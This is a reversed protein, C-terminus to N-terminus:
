SRARKGIARDIILRYQSRCDELRQVATRISTVITAVKECIRRQEAVPPLLIEITEIRFLALKPQTTKATLARIQQQGLQSGLYNFLYEPLIKDDIGTIKAANETLNAGHLEKPVLALRGITGAISIVIDKESVIYRSISPFVAEPVYEFSEQAIEGDVMDVVRIYPHVTPEQSFATGKPLRKGGKVTAIHGLSVVGWHRQGQFVVSELAGKIIRIKAELQVITEALALQAGLLKVIRRQEELPPLAFEEKALDRWNITPSLGGVSIKVARDMFVDSQMFFPLFEELVVDTKPRLVMAHASCIGDFDAVALKRQYARRKGFIIDGARFVLKSSEVDTTEGWRRIKQSEPDIHELGVYRDVDAEAPNDIKDKVQIAMEDFRFTRTQNLTEPM